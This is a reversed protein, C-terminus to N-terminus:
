VETLNPHPPCPGCWRWFAEPELNQKPLLFLFVNLIPAWKPCGSNYCGFLRSVGSLTRTSPIYYLLAETRMCVETLIPHSVHRFINRLSQRVEWHSTDRSWCGYERMSVLLPSQQLVFAHLGEREPTCNIFDKPTILLM